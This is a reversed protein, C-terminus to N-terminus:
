VRNAHGLNKWHNTMRSSLVVREEWLKIRKGNPKHPSTPSPAHISSPSEITASVSSHRPNLNHSWLQNNISGSITDRDAAFGFGLDGGGGGGGDCVNAFPVAAGGRGGGHPKNESSPRLLLEEGGEQPLLLAELVLELSSKKMGVGIEDGVGGGRGASPNPTAKEILLSQPKLTQPTGWGSGTSAAAAAAAAAFPTPSSASALASFFVVAFFFFPLGLPLACSPSASACSAGALLPVM